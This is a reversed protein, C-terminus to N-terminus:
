SPYLGIGYYYAAEETETTICVVRPYVHFNHCGLIREVKHDSIYALPIKFSSPPTDQEVPLGQPPDDSWEIEASTVQGTGSMAIAIVVYGEDSKGLGSKSDERGQVVLNNVAGISVKVDKDTNDADDPDSAVLRVERPCDCTASSGGESGAPTGNIIIESPTENLLIHNGARIKQIDPLSDIHDAIIGFAQTLSPDNFSLRPTKRKM